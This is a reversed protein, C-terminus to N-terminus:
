PVPVIRWLRLPESIATTDFYLQTTNTLTVIALMMWADTPGFQNIYDVRLHDGINGTLTIAPVIGPLNLSPLVVPTATQWTRYYRQPALSATIDFYLQSTSVLSVADLSLWNPAPAISSAYDLNVLSGAAGFLNLAPVPRHEVPTIVQLMAPPSTVAGFANSVFVSYAGAQSFQVSTLRLSSNTTAGTIVNTGNFLWQYVLPARGAAYANFAVTFGLEATQNAPPTLLIPKATLALSHWGGAGIAVVGALSAPVNTQGDSNDGWAVVTGDSKLALSHGGSLANFGGAAVAIVGTL